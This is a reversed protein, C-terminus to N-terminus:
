KLCLKIANPFRKAWDIENHKANVDILYFYDKGEVYGKQKLAHIMEDVGPQLKSELGVGGNDIYFFVDKKEKTNLVTSVYDINTIKFAPSMCIAKSFVSPYEWALMFSILGGASSGGVLTNKRDPKTRYVSDIMPKLRNVVFRMYASAVEGPTYEKTRNSTNYIGVVIYPETIKNRILSDSSEDLRWDVGFASTAPDIINQGDQMYLVLYRQKRTKEYGPPLWVIIDRPEIGDGALQRHYAVTGTIKGNIVKKNDGNKWFLIDHNLTTDNKLNLSFNRLPLGNANVAERDWSGLTFKYEISIPITLKVKLSWRHSGENLLLVRAPSWSGLEPLNGAIFVRATDALTPANVVFVVTKEETQQATLQVVFILYLFHLIGKTPNLIKM